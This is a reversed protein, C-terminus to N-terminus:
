GIQVLRWWSKWEHIILFAHCKLNIRIRQRTGAKTEVAPLIFADVHCRGWLDTSPSSSFIDTNNKVPIVSHLILRLSPKAIDPNFVVSHSGTTTKLSAGRLVLNQIKKTYKRNHTLLLTTFNTIPISFCTFLIDSAVNFAIDYFVTSRHSILAIHQIFRSM